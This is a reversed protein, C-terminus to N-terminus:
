CFSSTVGRGRGRGGDWGNSYKMGGDYNGRGRGRGRGGRGRGRVRRSAEGEEDYENLSKVQDSPLPPQYSKISLWARSRSCYASRAADKSQGLLSSSPYMNTGMGLRRGTEKAIALSIMKVNVGLNLTRTITEASDHRPPDFLPLLALFQWLAGPADKSKEPVEIFTLIRKKGFRDLLGWLDSGVSLLSLLLQMAKRRVDEKYNCLNLIQEPAGKSSIHWNGDSEIYTLATRKDGPNFPFFHVERIRARAEKPDALMGVIVADIADQNETRCLQPLISSLFAAVCPSSCTSTTLDFLSVCMLTRLPAVRALGVSPTRRLLVPFPHSLAETCHFNLTISTRHSPPALSIAVGISFKSPHTYLASTPLRKMNKKHRKKKKKKRRAEEEEEEKKKKKKKKEKEKEEEKEEEEKKKKKTGRKRKRREGHKRKRKRRRRRM